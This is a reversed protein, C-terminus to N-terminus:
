NNAQQFSLLVAITSKFVAIQQKLEEIVRSSSAQLVPHFPPAFAAALSSDSQAAATAASIHAYFITPSKLM